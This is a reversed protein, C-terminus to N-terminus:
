KIIIKGTNVLQGKTEIKYVYMGSAMNKRYFEFKTTALDKVEFWSEQYILFM